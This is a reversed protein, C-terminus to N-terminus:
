DGGILTRRLLLDADANLAEAGSDAGNAARDAKEDADEDVVDDGSGGDVAPVGPALYSPGSYPAKDKDDAKAEDGDGDDAPNEADMEADADDPGSSIVEDRELERSLPVDGSGGVPGDL